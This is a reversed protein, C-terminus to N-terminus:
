GGIWVRFLHWRRVAESRDQSRQPHDWILTSQQYECKEVLFLATAIAHPKTGLPAVVTCGVGAGHERRLLDLAGSVSSAACYAVSASRMANLTAINNALADLEWGTAYGPVGFVFTKVWTAMEEYQGLVQQLRDDEYGLFAVLKMGIATRRSLDTAFGPVSEFRRADTLSFSRLWQAQAARYRHPEAYM